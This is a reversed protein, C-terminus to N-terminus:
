LDEFLDALALSLGPPDLSLAGDAVIRTEIRTGDARRHHVVRRREADVILYHRVSPVQFYGVLKAGSDVGRTSPSLVEVLILPDPVEITDPDLHQGCRVLADPEYATNRDIRVTMGDPFMECPLGGSRIATKLAAQIAFKTRAHGAREPSMAVVEGGALEYRGPRGEAWALFEDVSMRPKPEASM